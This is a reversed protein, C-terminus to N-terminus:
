RSQQRDPDPTPAPRGRSREVRALDAELDEATRRLAPLFEGLVAEVTVRSTHCSVNMAAVTTGAGDRIPVALSRLGEELESEVLAHGDRRVDRVIAVLADVDTVTRATFAPRDAAELRTRVEDEPLGALLVRGMSTVWVPFRTGVAISVRMIRSTAVRAVYVVHDGDVVSVSSSEGTTAALRELHPQALEPLDSSAIYAYGLELIRPTLRFLRDDVAVYGLDVLTLLFRRAAARTLGTERAIESLTLEPREEGFARIVSLGRAFSRVYSGSAEEAPGEAM